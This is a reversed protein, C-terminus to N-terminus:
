SCYAQGDSTKVVQNDQFAPPCCESYGQRVAQGGVRAQELDLFYGDGGSQRRTKRKKGGMQKRSKRSQKRSKRSKRSQKSKRSKGGSQSKTRKHSKPRGSPRKNVSKRKVTRAM